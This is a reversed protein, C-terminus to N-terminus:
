ALGGDVDGQDRVLSASSVSRPGVRDAAPAHVAGSVVAICTALHERAAARESAPVVVPMPSTPRAPASIRQTAPRRVASGAARELAGTFRKPSWMGPGFWRLAGTDRAEAECAAIARMCDHEASRADGYEALRLRLEPEIAHPRISESLGLSTAMAAYRAVHASAVRSLVDDGDTGSAVPLSHDSGPSGLDLDLPQNQTPRDSAAAALTVSPSNHQFTGKHNRAAQEARVKGAKRTSIKTKGFWEIRGGTGRLRFIPDGPRTFVPRLELAAAWETALHGTVLEALGADVLHVDGDAGLEARVAAAPLTYHQTETCRSWLKVMLYLAIATHVGLLEGLFAFREDAGHVQPELTVRVPM